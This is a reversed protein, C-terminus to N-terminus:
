FAKNSLAHQWEVCSTYPLVDTFKVDSFQIPWASPPHVSTPSWTGPPCTLRRQANDEVVCQRHYWRRCMRLWDAKTANESALITRDSPGRFYMGLAASEGRFDVSCKSCKTLQAFPLEQVRALAYVENPETVAKTANKNRMLADRFTNLMASNHVRVPPPSSASSSSSSPATLDFVAGGTPRGAHVTNGGGGSSSSSPGM